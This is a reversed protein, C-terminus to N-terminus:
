PADIKQVSTKKQHKEVMSERQRIIELPNLAAQIQFKLKLVDRLAIVKYGEQKLYQMFEIFMEKKTNVWPHPTDPVGHFQLIPIEGNQNTVLAAKFDEMEWSPIAIGSSPILFPHDKQPDYVFGINNLKPKKPFNGRRALVIGTEKFIDFAGLDYRNGPYAFSIPKPIGNKECQNAIAEIQEKLRPLSKTTVGMHDRTHNGIEFGEDHLQKIQSWTMYHEKNTKFDWGETIFFTAGFGLEKLIPRVVTFHSKISDDFTLVVIKPVDAFLATCLFLILCSLKKVM